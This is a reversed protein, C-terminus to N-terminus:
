NLMGLMLGIEKTKKVLSDRAKGRPIGNLRICLNNVIVSANSVMALVERYEADENAEKLKTEYEKRLKELAETDEQVAVEVPRSELETIRAQLQEISSDKDTRERTLKAIFSQNNYIEANLKAIEQQDRVFRGNQEEIKQRKEEADDCWKQARGEADELAAETQENQHKLADIQARLERVTVSEVDVADTIEQRQEETVTALLALKTVGIQRMSSVNEQTMNEAISIFRYAQPRSMQFECECYGEFNDYLLAKYHKGDRMEKLAVCMDWLSEAVIQADAKIRRHLQLAKSHEDDEETAPEQPVIDTVQESEDAVMEGAKLFIRTYYTSRPTMMSKTIRQTQICDDEDLCEFRVGEEYQMTDKRWLEGALDEEDDDDSVTDDILVHTNPPLEQLEEYSLERGFVEPHESYFFTEGHPWNDALSDLRLAGQKLAFFHGSHRLTEGYMEVIDSEDSEVYQKRTSLYGNGRCLYMMNTDGNDNISYIWCLHLWRHSQTSDDCVVLGGVYQHLEKWTLPTPEIDDESVEDGRMYKFIGKEKLAKEISKMDPASIKEVANEQYMETILHNVTCVDPLHKKLRNFVKIDLNLEEINM